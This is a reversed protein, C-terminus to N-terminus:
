AFPNFVKAGAHTYDDVNRTALTLNHVLATAAIVSDAFPMGKGAADLEAMLRAWRAAVVRNYPLIRGVM